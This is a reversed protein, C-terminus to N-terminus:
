PHLRDLLHYQSTTFSVQWCRGRVYAPTDGRHYVTSSRWWDTKGNAGASLQPMFPNRVHQFAAVRMDISQLYLAGLCLTEIAMFPTDHMGSLDPMLAMARSAYQAGPPSPHSSARDVFAKGFALVLLFQALWFLSEGDTVEPNAYFQYLRHLFAEEDIIRAVVGLHYKVANFLYLSHDLPPLDSLDPKEKAGLHKWELRFALGDSNWSDPSAGVEPECQGVLALVRRCFTWSSSPGM